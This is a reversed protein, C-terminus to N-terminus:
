FCRYNEFVIWYLLLVTRVLILRDSLARFGEAVVTAKSRDREVLDVLGLSSNLVVM